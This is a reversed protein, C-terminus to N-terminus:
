ELWNDIPPTNKPSKCVEIATLEVLTSPDPPVNRDVASASLALAAVSPIVEPM